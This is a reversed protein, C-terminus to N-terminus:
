CFFSAIGAVIGVVAAGIAIAPAGAAALSAAGLGMAKAAVVGLTVGVLVKAVTGFSKLMEEGSSMAARQSRHVQEDRRYEITESALNQRGLEAELKRGGLLTDRSVVAERLESELQQIRVSRVKVEHKLDEVALVHQKNAEAVEKQLLTQFVDKTYTVSEKIHHNWHTRAGIETVGIVILTGEHDLQAYGKTQLEDFTESVVVRVTNGHSITIEFRSNNAPYHTCAIPVIDGMIACYITDLLSNPNPDNAAFTITPSEKAATRVADLHVTDYSAVLCPHKALHERSELCILIQETELYFGSVNYLTPHIVLEEVDLPIPRNSKDLREGVHVRRYIHVGDEHASYTRNPELVVRRGWRDIYVVNSSTNNSIAFECYFGCQSPAIYSDPKVIRSVENSSRQM